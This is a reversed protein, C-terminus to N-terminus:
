EHASGDGRGHGIRPESEKKRQVHIVAAKPHDHFEHREDPNMMPDDSKESDGSGQDPKGDSAKTDSAVVGGLFAVPEFKNKLVVTSDANLWHDLMTAYVRRFDTSFKLDGQDLDSLSPYKGYLGGKVKPGCVFMPAATGHDTGNSDNQSVRRGFESFCMLTVKDALKKAGLDKFFANIALSVQRLLNEHQGMQNSHTDFGGVQCYYVKTGFNGSIIQAILKLQQGFGGGYEADPKYGQPSSACRNPKSSPTPPRDPSSSFRPRQM